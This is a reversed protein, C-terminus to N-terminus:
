GFLCRPYRRLAQQLQDEPVLSWLALWPRNFTNQRSEERHRANRRAINKDREEAEDTEIRRQEKDVDKEHDLRNTEARSM